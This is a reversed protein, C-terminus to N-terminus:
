ARGCLVDRLSEDTVRTARPGLKVTKLRGSEILRWVQRISCNLREAVDTARHCTPTSPPPLEERRRAERIARDLETGTLDGGYFAALGKAHADLLESPPSSERSKTKM